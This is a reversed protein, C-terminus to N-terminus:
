KLPISELTILVFTRPSTQTAKKTFSFLVLKRGNPLFLVLPPGFCHKAIMISNIRTTKLKLQLILDNGSFGM